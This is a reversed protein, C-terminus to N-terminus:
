RLGEGELYWRAWDLDRRTTIKLNAPDGPVTWVTAGYREVLAADDTALHGERRAREHADVLLSRRFAQPTQVVRLRDRDHTRVVVGAEDVEKVTDAIELAATAAGRAFAAELCTAILAATVLPRAADHVLIIETTSPTAMLGLRVSEQREPGGAVVTLTPTAHLHVQTLCSPDAAMGAPVVVVGCAFRTELALAELARQLLTKGALEVFAKALPSGLRRGEGGAVLVFAANM